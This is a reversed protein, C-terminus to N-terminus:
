KEKESHKNNRKLNEVMQASAALAKEVKRMRRRTCCSGCFVGCYCIAFLVAAVTTFTKWHSSLSSLGEKTFIRLPANESFMEVETKITWSTLVESEVYYDRNNFVPTFPSIKVNNSSRSKM